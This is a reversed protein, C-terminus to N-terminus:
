AKNVKYPCCVLFIDLDSEVNTEITRQANDDKPALGLLHAPCVNKLDLQNKKTLPVEVLYYFQYEEEFISTADSNM